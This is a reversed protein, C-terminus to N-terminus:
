QAEVPLAPLPATRLADIDALMGAVLTEVVREGKERTALTADGWVGSPSYTGPKSPDRTLWGKEGRPSTDAVAKSMDVREPAIYLLMSTEIEDAHTGRTQESVERETPAAVELLN